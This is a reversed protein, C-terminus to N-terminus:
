KEEPLPVTGVYPKGDVCGSFGLRALEANDMAPRLQAAVEAAHHGMAYWSDGTNYATFQLCLVSSTEGRDCYGFSWEGEVGSVMGPARFCWVGDWPMYLGAYACQTPGSMREWSLACIPPTTMHPLQYTAPFPAPTPTEASPPLTPM